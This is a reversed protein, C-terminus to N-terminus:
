YGDNNNMTRRNNNVPMAGFNNQVPVGQQPYVPQGMGMPQQMPQQYGQMPAQNYDNRPQIGNNNSAQNANLPLNGTNVYNQLEDFTYNKIINKEEVDIDDPFQDLPLPQVPQAIIAYETSTSGKAGSRKILFPVDHISGEYGELYPKIKNKFQNESRQWIQMDGTQENRLNFYVVKRPVEGAACLPCVSNPQSYDNRLCGIQHNRGDKMINHVLYVPVDQLSKYAFRVVATDGDNQLSLFSTRGASDPFSEAQQANLRSM